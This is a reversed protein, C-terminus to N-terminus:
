SLSSYTRQSSEFFDLLPSFFFGLFRTPSRNLLSHLLIFFIQSSKRSILSFIRQCVQLVCLKSYKYLEVQQYKGAKM